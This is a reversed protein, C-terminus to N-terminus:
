GKIIAHLGELAVAYTRAGFGCVFGSAIDSLFSRHRFDERGFINTLHAEVFPIKSCLVADRILVSTHTYAGPNLIMGDCKSDSIIAALEGEIYSSSFVLEMCLSAGKELTIRVLDDRSFSGYVQPERVGVKDLLPGEIICIKM